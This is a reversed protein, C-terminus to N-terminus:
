GMEDIFRTRSRKSNYGDKTFFIHLFKKARTVAVYFVRREEEIAAEDASRGPTVSDNAGIIYVIDFELGKSGHFTMCKVNRESALGSKEMLFILEAGTRHTRFLIGVSMGPDCGAIENIVAEAEAQKDKFARVDPRVSGKNIFIIPKDYRNKNHSILSGAARVIPSLSRYNASMIIYRAGNFYKGFSLMIGPDSGRFGYISQDDDGVAFLNGHQATLLKIIAFQIRNIDQFEDIMIYEYMSSLEGLVRSDSRILKYFLILMDDFDLLNRAHITRDYIRLISATEGDTGAMGNKMRSIESLVHEIRDASIRHDPHLSTIIDKLIAISEKHTILGANLDPIYRKLHSYFISHFTGFSVETYTRGSLKLYRKRMEDAAAKTFTVALISQEPIKLESTLRLIRQTFVTTKGSGPGAIVLAPGRVHEIAATQEANFGKNASPDM